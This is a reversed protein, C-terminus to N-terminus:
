SVFRLRRVFRTKLRFGLIIYTIKKLFFSVSVAETHIKESSRKRKKVRKVEM